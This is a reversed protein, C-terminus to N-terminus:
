RIVQRRRSMKDEAAARGDRWADGMSEAEWFEEGFYKLTLFKLLVANKLGALLSRRKFSFSM